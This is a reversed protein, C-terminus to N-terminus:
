LKPVSLARTGSKRMPYQKIGVEFMSRFYQAKELDGIDELLRSKVYCLIYQHMGTDLGGTGWLDNTQASVDTYKSHYVFRLGDSVFLSTWTGTDGVTGTLNTQNGNETNYQFRTDVDVTTITVQEDYANDSMNIYVVDGISYGHAAATTVTGVKGSVDNDSVTDASAGLASSAFTFTTTTPTSAIEHNGNYHRTGSIKIRDNTALGHAESCTVTVTSGDTLMETMTGSLDGDGQFSDYEDNHTNSELDTRQEVIAVRGDDNYWAYYDNPYNRKNTAM